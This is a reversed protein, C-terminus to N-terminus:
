RKLRLDLVPYSTRWGRLVREFEFNGKTYPSHSRRREGINARIADIAPQATERLRSAGCIGAIGVIEREGPVLAKLLAHFSKGRVGGRNKKFLSEGDLVALGADHALAHALIQGAQDGILADIYHARVEIPQFRREVVANAISGQALVALSMGAEPRVKLPPNAEDFRDIGFLTPTQASNEFV